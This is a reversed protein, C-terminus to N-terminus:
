QAFWRRRRPDRRRNSARDTSGLDQIEEEAPGKRGKSRGWEGGREGRSTGERKGGRLELETRETPQRTAPCNGSTIETIVELSVVTEM